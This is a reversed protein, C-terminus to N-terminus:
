LRRRACSRSAACVPSARLSEHCADHRPAHASGRGRGTPEHLLTPWAQHVAGPRRDLLLPVDWGPGPVRGVSDCDGVLRPRCHFSRSIDCGALSLDLVVGGGSADRLDAVTYLVMQFFFPYFYLDFLNM